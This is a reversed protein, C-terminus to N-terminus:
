IFDIHIIITKKYEKKTIKPYIDKFKISLFINYKSFYAYIM